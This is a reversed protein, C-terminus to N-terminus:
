LPKVVALYLVLLGTVSILPTTVILFWWHQHLVQEYRRAADARGSLRIQRKNGGFHSLWYDVIEIPLFVLVVICLKLSLWFHALGWPGATLLLLGSLLLLPFAVHELVVGQDFREMAINRQRLLREDDPARQWAKIAPLLYNIYAVSTSALWIMACAVHFFKIQLYYPVLAASLQEVFM